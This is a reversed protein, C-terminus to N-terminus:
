GKKRISEEDDDDSFDGEEKEFDWNKPEIEFGHDVVYVKPESQVEKPPSEKEEGMESVRSKKTPKNVPGIEMPIGGKKPKNQKVM